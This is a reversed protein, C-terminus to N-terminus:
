SESNEINVDNNGNQSLSPPADPGNVDYSPQGPGPETNPQPVGGPVNEQVPEADAVADGDPDATVNGRLREAEEQVAPVPEDQQETTVPGDEVSSDDTPQEQSDPNQNQPEMM